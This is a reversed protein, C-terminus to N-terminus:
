PSSAAVVLRDFGGRAAAAIARAHREDRALALVTPGSGSVLTGLAGARRLASRGSALDPRLQLAAPQLDNHLEAAVEAVDGAELASRMAAASGSSSPRARVYVDRTLLPEASIGLAFWLPAAARLPTVVEGRGTALATGGVLFYPVDSGLGAAVRALRGRALPRGLVQDLARLVAAADASGGGLGAGIPIRKVLEIRVGARAGAADLYARAARAALDDRPAPPAGVVGPDLRTELDVNCGETLTVDVDDALDIGHLITEIEHYGDPREALVRLFLNVKAHARV